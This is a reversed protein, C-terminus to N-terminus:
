SNSIGYLRFTGTDVTGSSSYFRLGTLATTATNFGTILISELRGDVNMSAGYSKIKKVLSTSSPQSVFLVFDASRGSTNGITQFMPITTGNTNNVQASYSASSSTVSSSHYRYNGGTDYSGGLKM